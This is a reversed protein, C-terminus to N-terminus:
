KLCVSKASVFRVNSNRIHNITKKSFPKILDSYITVNFGLNTLQDIAEIFIGNIDIGCIHIDYDQPRLIFDLKDGDFLLQDGSHDTITIENNPHLFSDICLKLNIIKTNPVTGNVNVNVFSDAPNNVSVYAGLTSGSSKLIDKVRSFLEPGINILRPSNHHCYGDAIGFAILAVKKM